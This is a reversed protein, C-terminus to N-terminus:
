DGTIREEPGAKRLSRLWAVIARGDAEPVAFAPMQTGPIGTLINQRIAADSSGWKWRGSTLDPGRGGKAETGHCASCTKQFLKHGIDIRVDALAPHPSAFLMATFLSTMGVFNM